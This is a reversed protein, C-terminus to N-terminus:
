LASPPTLLFLKTICIVESKILLVILLGTCVSIDQRPAAKRAPRAIPVYRRFLSHQNTKLTHMCMHKIAFIATLWYWHLGYFLLLLQAPRLIFSLTKVITIGKNRWGFLCKFFKACKKTHKQQDLLCKVTSHVKTNTSIRGSLIETIHAIENEVLM